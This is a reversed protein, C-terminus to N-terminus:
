LGQIVVAYGEGVSIVSHDVYLIANLAHNAIKTYTNCKTCSPLTFVGGDDCALIFQNQDMDYAIGRPIAELARMVRDYDRYVSLREAWVHGLSSYLIAPSGDDYTGTIVIANQSALIKRFNARKNFGAYDQNYDKIEWHVADASKIIEGADTIGIYFAGKASVSLINGRSRTQFPQWNKGDHSILILGSDSGALMLGNGSTIDHIDKDTGSEIAVFHKGDTSYIMAGHTGAVVVVEDNAFACTLKFNHSYDVPTIAASTTIRDIRGDTGVAIFHDRWQVIATYGNYSGSESAILKNAIPM